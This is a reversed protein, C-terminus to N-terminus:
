ENARMKPDLADRLGDGLLNFALVTISIVIAPAFFEHPHTLIDQIADNCLSGWSAAPAAVGLGIFSLFAEAFIASPINFTLTVLMIGLLNPFMHRFLLYKPRAGMMRAAHVFESERLQLVQGRVLRAAGPWSLAVLAIVLATIGSEGPGIGMAVKLLIVFLLFPLGLVFDTIRMIYNDLKGGSYGSIGGIVMGIFTELFAAFLGIFISIKGGFMLRALLDRGLSDTGLPAAKLPILDGVKADPNTEHALDLTVGPKVDLHLTAANASEEGDLNKAVVSYYYDRIQLSELDEYSVQQANATNGMPVGLRGPGPAVENRYISYSAAGPVPDWTLRIGQTSVVDVTKLNGPAPLDTINETPTEPVSTATVGAWETRDELVVAKAGITPVISVQTPDQHTPAVTWFLPGVFVFLILAFVVVLSILSQKNKKFRRWADQWYSLSPRSLGVGVDKKRAPAFDGPSFHRNKAAANKDDTRDGAANTSANVPSIPNIQDM